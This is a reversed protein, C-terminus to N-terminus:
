EEISFELECCDTNFNSDCLIYIPYYSDSIDNHNDYESTGFSAEAIMSCCITKENGNSDLEYIDDISIDSNEFKYSSYGETAISLSIANKFAEKNLLKEVNSKEGRLYLNGKLVTKYGLM